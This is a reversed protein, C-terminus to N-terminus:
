MKSVHLSKPSQCIMFGIIIWTLKLDSRNINRVILGGTRKRPKLIEWWLVQPTNQTEWHRAIGDWGYPSVLLSGLIVSLGMIRNREGVGEKQITKGRRCLKIEKCHEKADENRQLETAKVRILLTRFCLIVNMKLSPLIWGGHFCKPFCKGM